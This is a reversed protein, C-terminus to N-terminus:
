VRQSRNSTQGNWDAGGPSMAERLDRVQGSGQMQPWAAASTTGSRDLVVRGDDAKIWGTANKTDLLHMTFEQTPQLTPSQPHALPCTAPTM